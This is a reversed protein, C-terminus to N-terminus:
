ARVCAHSRACARACAGVGGPVVGAPGMGRARAGERRVAEGTDDFTWSASHQAARARELDLMPFAPRQVPTAPARELDVLDLPAGRQPTPTHSPARTRWVKTNQAM